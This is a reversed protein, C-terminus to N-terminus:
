LNKPSKLESTHDESRGQFPAHIATNAKVWFDVGLHTTRYEPGSNGEKQYAKTSYFPRVELYGGALLVKPKEAQLRNIKFSTLELDNYENETWLWKSAISMDISHISNFDLTPFITNLSTEQTKTWRLFDKENPHASFGCASRFSYHVLNEDLDKWRK